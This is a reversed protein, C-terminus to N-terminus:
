HPEFDKHITEWTSTRVRVSRQPESPAITPRSHAEQTVRNGEGPVGGVEIHDNTPQRKMPQGQQDWDLVDYEEKGAYKLVKCHSSNYSKIEVGGGGKVTIMSGNVGIVAYPRPDYAPTLTDGRKQKLLVRDGIKITSQQAHRRKDAYVKM